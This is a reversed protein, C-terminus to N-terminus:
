CKVSKNISFKNYLNLNLKLKPSVKLNFNNFNFNGNFMLLRLSLLDAERQHLVRLKSTKLPLFLPATKNVWKRKPPCSKNM